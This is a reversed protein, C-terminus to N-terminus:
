NHSEREGANAGLTGLQGAPGSNHTHTHSCAHEGPLCSWPAPRGPGAATWCILLVLCEKRVAERTYKDDATLCRLMCADIWWHIQFSDPPLSISSRLIRELKFKRIGGAKKKGRAIEKIDWVGREWVCVCVGFKGNFITKWKPDIQWNFHVLVNRKNKIFYKIELAFIM